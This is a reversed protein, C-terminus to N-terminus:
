LEYYIKDYGWEKCYREAADAMITDRDLGQKFGELLWHLYTTMRYAAKGDRFPDLDEIILSWDGFGPIPGKTWHENLTNWLSEWDKFVVRGIGLQYLQSRDLGEMDLMLTPTGALAAEMGATGAHLSDHIAIDSAQAAQAPTIAFDEQFLYCRGTKIAQNLLEAINGLRKRLTLPKKPKIVLGLWDENVVKELLFQYNKQVSSHGTFWRDDDLSNEDFFAIIKKAGQRQLQLRLDLSDKKVLDFRYDGIYGVSVFYKFESGNLKEIDKVKPSFGFYLDAHILGGPSSLEHYPEQWVASIGGLENIAKTVAIHKDFYEFQTIYVKANYASILSKWYQKVWTFRDFHVKFFKKELHDYSRSNYPNFAIKNNHLPYYIPVQLGNAIKANLAIFRMGANRIDQLQKEYIKHSGTVFIISEPSLESLSWISGAEYKIMVADVILKPNVQKNNSATNIHIVPKKFYAREIIQKVQRLITSSYYLNRVVQRMRLSRTVPILSIGYNNAYASLEPMWCRLEILLYVSDNISVSRVHDAVVQIMLLTQWMSKPEFLEGTSITTAINKKIYATLSNDEKIYKINENYCDSKVIEQLINGLDEFLIRWGLKAGKANKLEDFKFMMKNFRGPLFLSIFEIFYLGSRSSDFYFVNIQSQRLHKNKNVYILSKLGTFFTLNEIYIM